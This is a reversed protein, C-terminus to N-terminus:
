RENRRRRKSKQSVFHITLLIVVGGTYPKIVHSAVEGKEIHSGLIVERYSKTEKNLEIIVHSKGSQFQFTMAFPVRHLFGIDNGHLMCYCANSSSGASSVNEKHDSVESYLLHSAPHRKM